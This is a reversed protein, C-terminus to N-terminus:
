RLFVKVSVLGTNVVGGDLLVNEKSLKPCALCIRCMGVCVSNTVLVGWRCCSVVKCWLFVFVPGGGARSPASDGCRRPTFSYCVSVFSPFVSVNAM